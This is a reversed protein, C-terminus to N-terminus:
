RSSCHADFKTSRVSYLLSLVSHLVTVAQANTVKIHANRTINDNTYLQMVSDGDAFASLLLWADSESCRLAIRAAAALV